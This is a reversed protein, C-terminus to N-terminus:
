ASRSEGAQAFLRPAAFDLFVRAKRPLVRGSWLATLDLPPGSWDPLLRVLQGSSLDDSVLFEPALAAGFGARALDALVEGNATRLAPSVEVETREAGSALPWRAPFASTTLALAPAGALDRPQRIPGFAAEFGPSAVVLRRWSGLRRATLRSDEVAGLRFVLDVGEVVPDLRDDRAALDLRVRPWARQFEGVLPVLCARTFAVSAGIRLLGAPEGQAAGVSGALAEMAAVVERAHDSARRGADTLSLSRTTRHLLRAGLDRELSAVARSAASQAVGLEHAARSFSGTEAVRLFLRLAELRDM